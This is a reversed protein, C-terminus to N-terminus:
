YQLITVQQRSSVIVLSKTFIGLDKQICKVATIVYVEKIARSYDATRKLPVAKPMWKTPCYVAYPGTGLGGRSGLCKLDWLRMLTDREFHCVVGWTTCWEQGLGLTKGLQSSQPGQDFLLARCLSYPAMKSVAMPDILHQDPFPGKYTRQSAM